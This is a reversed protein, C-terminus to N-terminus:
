PSVCSRIGMEEAASVRVRHTGSCVAPLQKKKKRLCYHCFHCAGCTGHCRVFVKVLRHLLLFLSLTVSSFISSLLSIFFVQSPSSIFSLLSHAFARSSRTAKSCHGCLIFRVLTVPVGVCIHVHTVLFVGRILILIFMLLASRKQDMDTPRRIIKGSHGCIDALAM